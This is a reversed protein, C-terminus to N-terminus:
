CMRPFKRHVGSNRAKRDLVPFLQAVYLAMFEKLDVHVSIIKGMEWCSFRRRRDASVCKDVDEGAGSLAM